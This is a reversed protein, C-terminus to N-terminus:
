GVVGPAAPAPAVRHHPRLRSRLRAVLQDAAIGQMRAAQVTESAMAGSSERVIEPLDVEEIVEEALTVLDLRALVEQLVADQLSQLPRRRQLLHEAGAM